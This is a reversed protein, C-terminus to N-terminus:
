GGTPLVLPQPRFVPKPRDDVGRIMARLTWSGPFPSGSVRQLERGDADVLIFVPIGVVGYRSVLDPREDCDVIQVDASVSGDIKWGIHQMADLYPKNAQCPDCWDATFALVRRKPTCDVPCNECDCDKGCPCDHTSVAGFPSVDAVMEGFPSHDAGYCQAVAAQVIMEAVFLVLHYRM